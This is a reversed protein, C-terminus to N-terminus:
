VGEGITPRKSELIASTRSPILTLGDLREKPLPPAFLSGLYAVTMTVLCGVVGNLYPDLLGKYCTALLGLVVISTVIGVAIPLARTRRTFIGLLFIAVLGGSFMGLYTNATDVIGNFGLKYVMLSLMTVLTGIAYTWIKALTLYRQDNAEPRILRQYWDVSFATVLSNLGSDFCSMTAGLLAAILFGAIGTPLQTVVFYPVIRDYEGPKLGMEAPHARYFVWIAVGMGMLLILGPIKFLANFLLSKRAHAEDRTSMLLQVSIQDTGLDALALVLGALLMTWFTLRSFDIDMSPAKDVVGALVIEGLGGDVRAAVFGIILVQGILLAVFQMVDAWIMASMGGLGTYITTALGVFLICYEVSIGSITSLVMSPVLVVMSLWVLRKGIFLASALLRVNLGFRRELYEYASTVNLGRYFPLLGYMIIPIILIVSFAYAFLACDKTYVRAPHGMFSLGSLLSAMVSLAVPLWHMSQSALFYEKTSTQRRSFYAGLAFRALLFGAFVLWDLYGLGHHNM